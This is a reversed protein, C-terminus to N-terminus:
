VMEEQSHGILKTPLQPFHQTLEVFWYVESEVKRYSVHIAAIGSILLFPQNETLVPLLERAVKDM